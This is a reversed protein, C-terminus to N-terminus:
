LYLFKIDLIQMIWYIIRIYNIVMLSEYNLIINVFNVPSLLNGISKNKDEPILNEKNNYTIKSLFLYEIVLKSSDKL